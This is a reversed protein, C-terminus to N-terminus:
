FSSMAMASKRFSKANSVSRVCITFLVSRVEQCLPGPMVSHRSIGQMKGDIMKDRIMKVMKRAWSALLGMMKDWFIVTLQSIKLQALLLCPESIYNEQELFGAFGVLMVFSVFGIFGIVKVEIMKVIKVM